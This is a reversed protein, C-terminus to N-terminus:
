PAMPVVSSTEAKNYVVNQHLSIVAETQLHRYYTFVHGSEHLNSFLLLQFGARRQSGHTNKEKCLEAFLWTKGM